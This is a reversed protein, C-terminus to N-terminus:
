LEDSASPGLKTVRALDACAVVIQAGGLRATVLGDSLLPALSAEPAGLVHVAVIGDDLVPSRDDGTAPSAREGAALLGLSTAVYMALAAGSVSRLAGYPDVTIRRAM